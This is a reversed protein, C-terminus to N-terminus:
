GAEGSGDAEDDEATAVVIEGYRAGVIKVKAGQEIYSGDESVASHEEGDLAIRGGPHLDSIAEAIRGTMEGGWTEVRGASNGGITANVSAAQVIKLRPLNFILIVGGIALVLIAFLSDLMGDTLAEAYRPDTFDFQIEDPMFSLLLGALMGAFGVAALIGGTIGTALETVVLIVGVALLVMDVHTALNLYYQCVLYLSGSIAGLILFLGVGATKLELIVFLIALGALIPAFGRLERALLETDTPSLDLVRDPDVGLDDYVADLDEAIATAMGLEVAESGTLTLLEDKQYVRVLAEERHEEIYPNQRLFEDLKRESVYEIRGDPFIAKYVEQDIDTMKLFLAEDWDREQSIARFQTRVMTTIKEPAYAMTGDPAQFIVGIDGIAAKDVIHIEQNAYAIMAGASIAKDDVFAIMRPDDEGDFELYLKCIDIAEFLGGGYTVIHTVITDVGAEEARALADRVYVLQLQDIPGTIEIYAVEPAADRTEGAAAPGDDAGPLAAFLAWLLLTPLVPIRM